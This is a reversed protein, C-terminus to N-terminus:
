PTSEVKFGASVKGEKEFKKHLLYYTTTVQNHKNSNLCQMAVDARFGFKDLYRLM